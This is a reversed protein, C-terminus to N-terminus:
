SSSPIRRTRPTRPNDTLFWGSNAVDPTDLTVEPEGFVLRDVLEVGQMFSHDQNSVEYKWGGFRGRSFIRRAELVPRLASLLEDRGLFPTPYGYEERHHWRSLVTTDEPVLNSRRMADVVDAVLRDTVPKAPTECVEAMLSWYDNGDPM